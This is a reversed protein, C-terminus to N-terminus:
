EDFGLRRRIEEVMIELIQGDAGKTREPHYRSGKNDFERSIMHKPLPICVMGDGMERAAVDDRNELGDRYLYECTDFILYGKDRDLHIM